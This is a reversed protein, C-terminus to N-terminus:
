QYKTRSAASAVTTTTAPQSSGWSLGVRTAPGATVTSRQRSDQIPVVPCRAGTVADLRAPSQPRVTDVFRFAYLTASWAHGRVVVDGVQRRAYPRMQRFVRLLDVERGEVVGPLPVGALRPALLDRVADRPCGHLADVSLEAIAPDPLSRMGTEEGSVKARCEGREEWAADKIRALTRKTGRVRELALRGVWYLNIGVFLLNWYVVQMFPQPQVYFYLMLCTAGVLSLLRLWLIDRVFYASLYLLNAINLLPDM